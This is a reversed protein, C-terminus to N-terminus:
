HGSDETSVRDPNPTLKVTKRATLRVPIKEPLKKAVPKASSSSAPNQDVSSSSKSYGDYCVDYHREYVSLQARLETNERTSKEDQRKYLDALDCAESAQSAYLKLKELKRKRRNKKKEIKFNKALDGLNGEYKVKKIPRFTEIPTPLIAASVESEETEYDVQEEELEESM